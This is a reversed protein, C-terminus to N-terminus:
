VEKFLVFHVVVAQEVSVADQQHQQKEVWQQSQGAGLRQVYCVTVIGPLEAQGARVRATSWTAAMFLIFVAVTPRATVGM